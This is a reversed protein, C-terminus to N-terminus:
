HSRAAKALSPRVRDPRSGSHFMRVGHIVDNIDQQLAIRRATDAAAPDAQSGFLPRWFRPWGKVMGGDTLVRIVEDRFSPDPHHAAKAGVLVVAAVRDPALHAVELACSGGVSSGFLVLPGSGALDLVAGAWEELSDGLEYLTPAIVCDFELHMDDTWMTGDLPLAHLLVLNVAIVSSPLRIERAGSSLRAESGSVTPCM